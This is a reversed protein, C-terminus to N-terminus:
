PTEEHQWQNNARRAYRMEAEAPARSSSLMTRWPVSTNGVLMPTRPRRRIAAYRRRLLPPRCANEPRRTAGRCRKRGGGKM